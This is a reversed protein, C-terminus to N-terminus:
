PQSFSNIFILQFLLVYVLCPTTVSSAVPAAFCDVTLDMTNCQMVNGARDPVQIIVGHYNQGNGITSVGAAKNTVSYDEFDWYGAEEHNFPDSQHLLVFNIENIQTPKTTKIIRRLSELKSDEYSECLKRIKKFSEQKGIRTVRM